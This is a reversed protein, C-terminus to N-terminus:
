IKPREETQPTPAAGTAAAKEAKRAALMAQIDTSATAKKGADIYKSRRDENAAGALRSTVKAKGRVETRHKRVADLPSRESSRKSIGMLRENAEILKQDSVIDALAEAKETPLNSIEEKMKNLQRELGTLRGEQDKIEGELGAIQNKFENVENLFENADAEAESTDSGPAASEIAALAGELAQESAEKSERLGELRSRKQEIAAEVDGLASLFEQYEGILNDQELDYAAAVGQASSTFQRDAADSISQARRLRWNRFWRAIASFINM